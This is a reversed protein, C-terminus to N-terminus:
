SGVLTVQNQYRTCSLWKTVGDWVATQKEVAVGAEGGIVDTMMVVMAETSENRGRWVYNPGDMSCSTSFVDHPFVQICPILELQGM